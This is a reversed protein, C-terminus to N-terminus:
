GRPAGPPLRTPQVLHGRHRHEDREGLGQGPGDSNGSHHRKAAAILREIHASARTDLESKTRGTLRAMAEDVDNISWVHFTGSRAAAVVDERLMLHVENAKPLVVGQRGTLGRAACLDFFGEIKENVGGVAQVHGHQDISGTVAIEQSLPLEALASLLACTEALSASDGDVYGYTQEFVLQAALPLPQEPAYRNAILSALILVGKSHAPGGQEVERQVDMVHGRGLRVRATIRAPAGFPVRGPAVVMLGNVQGVAAGETEIRVVGRVEAELIRDRLRGARRERATITARVDEATISDRDGAFHDAECLIDSLGQMQTSLREADGATRAAHDVVAAVAGRDLPRVGEQRALCAVLRAFAAEGGNGRDTRAEMEAPVKFLPEFDPDLAQLLYYLMPEGVLVVKVDVPIPDPELSVTSVLNLAQGLGEIRVEGARLTRVLHSWSLPQRLLRHADLVLYGGNARHLAGPRILTFDTVLTGMRSHHEVRGVLAALTPNDEYVIPAHGEGTRDVLLNVEYRRGWDPDGAEAGMARRVIDTPTAEAGRFREANDAIDACLAELHAAVHETEAWRTRLAEFHANVTAEAVQRELARVRERHAAERRPQGEIVGRVEERLDHMAEQLQGRQAEPLAEVEESGMVDGDDGRPLLAFGGPATVLVLQRAAAAERLDALAAENEAGFEDDLKERSARYDRSEFTETLAAPLAAVADALGDRLALGQGPPLRVARPRTRDDFRHLYVWDDAVPESEAHAEILRTALRHRGSGPPGLVYLNYGPHRIDLAFRIAEVAREQGLPPPEDGVEATTDFPIQAPDTVRRLAEPPLSQATPTM